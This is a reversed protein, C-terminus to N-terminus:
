VDVDFNGYRLVNAGLFEDGQQLVEVRHEFLVKVVAIVIRESVNVVVGDSDVEIPPVEIGGRGRGRRKGNEEGDAEGFGPANVVHIFFALLGDGAGNIVDGSLSVTGTVKVVGVGHCNIHWELRDM